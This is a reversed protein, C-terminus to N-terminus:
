AVQRIEVAILEADGSMTDNIADSTDRYVKVRFREGAQLGDVTTITIETVTEVGSTSSTTSHGEAATDYSDTDLDHGMREFAVGWQVDGSTASSAMWFIRVKLGDSLDAGEPIVWVWFASEETSDDFDLVAISNRTDLTAFNSAPPQSNWPGLVALTKTGPGGGGGSALDAIQQTTVKVVKGGPIQVVVFEDGIPIGSQSSLGEPTPM